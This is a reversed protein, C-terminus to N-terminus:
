TNLKRYVKKNAKYLAVFTEYLQDYIEYNDPNPSFSKEHKVVGPIDDFSMAGLGVFGIFAAGRANAHVPDKVRRIERKMVDAFIQCWLDSKGGGGIISIPNMKHKIFNETYQMMWRANYAVGEMVARIMHERTTTTSMNHFGGRIHNDEVPTREGNIWPTFILKGSGPAVRSAVNNIAAYVDSPTDIPIDKSEYFLINDMLFKLCGGAFDQENLCQYKGPIATPFTAMAHVMDTKKFPVLCEIWSGTGIYLHTEYDRIAGSGLLACQHDPSGMVVKVDPNLGIQDAVTASISGLVDTSARMPPLKAKDIGLMQILKDDYHVNNIDKINSLWFLHMSDYSAAFQGTLKMNLYDKSPLFMYTKEYITPHEAQIFLVHGCDDKGSPSPLGATRSIWTRLKFINVGEISPFGRIKEKSYPAGRSDMWTIANMLHNGQKDVAVMSSFTSSICIATIKDPPVTKKEVLEKATGIMANLWDLPDQEAGGKPLIYMPTSQFASDFVHGQQDIIATKMGSTGHDVALVYQEKM